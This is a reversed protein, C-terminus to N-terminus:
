KTDPVSVEAEHITVLRLALACQMLRSQVAKLENRQDETLKTDTLIKLGTEFAAM